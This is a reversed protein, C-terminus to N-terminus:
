HDSGGLREIIDRKQEGVRHDLDLAFPDIDADQLLDAAAAPADAALREGGIVGPRESASLGASTPRLVPLLDAPRRRRTGRRIEM